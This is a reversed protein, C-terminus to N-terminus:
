SYYYSLFCLLYFIGPENKHTVYTGKMKIYKRTKGIYDLHKEPVKDFLEDMCKPPTGEEFIMYTGLPHQYNGSFCKYLLMTYYGGKIM